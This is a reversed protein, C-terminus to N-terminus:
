GQESISWFPYATYRRELLLLLCVVVADLGFLVVGERQPEHAGRAGEVFLFARFGFVRWSDDFSVALCGHM